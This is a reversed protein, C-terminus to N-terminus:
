DTKHQALLNLRGQLQAEMETDGAIRAHDLLEDIMQRAEDSMLADPHEALLQHATEEDAQVFAVVTQVVPDQMHEALDRMEARLVDYAAEIGDERCKHLLTGHLLLRRVMEDQGGQEQTLQLFMDLTSEGVDTLMSAANETLFAQSRDWDTMEVWTIIQNALEAVERETPEQRSTSKALTKKSSLKKARRKLKRAM